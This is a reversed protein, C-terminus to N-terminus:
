YRLPNVLHLLFTFSIAQMLPPKAMDQMYCLAIMLLICVLSFSAQLVLAIKQNTVWGFPGKRIYHGAMM